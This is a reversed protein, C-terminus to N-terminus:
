LISDTPVASTGKEYGPATADAAVQKAPRGGQVVARSPAPLRREAFPTLMQSYIVVADVGIGIMAAAAIGSRVMWGADQELWMGLAAVTVISGLIVAHRLVAAMPLFRYLFGFTVVFSLLDGIVLGALVGELRQSVAELLFGVLMGISAILNGATMRGTQGHNVLVMSPGARGFRLLVVLMALISFLASVQYRPGYVLPAIWGLILGIPIAIGAAAVLM